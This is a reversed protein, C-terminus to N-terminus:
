ARAAEDRVAVMEGLSPPWDPGPRYFADGPRARPNWPYRDVDWVAGALDDAGDPVLVGFRDSLCDPCLVVVDEIRYAWVRQYTLHHVVCLTHDHTTV